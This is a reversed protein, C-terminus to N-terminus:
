KLQHNNHVIIISENSPKERKLFHFILRIEIRKKKDIKSVNKTQNIMITPINHILRETATGSIDAFSINSTDIM